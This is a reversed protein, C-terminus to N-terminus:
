GGLLKMLTAGAFATFRAALGPMALAIAAVGLVISVPLVLFFLQIQPAMRTALGLAVNFLLGFVIFPAALGLGARFTESLLSIYLEALDGAAVAGGAPIAGYSGIIGAIALHHLDAAFILMVGWMRFLGALIESQQGQAPDVAQAFSLGISQSAMAGAVEMATVVLRASLGIAIGIIIEAPLIRLAGEPTFGATEGSAALSLGLGLVIRARAPLTREGIGPLLMVMAGVRAFALMFSAVQALAPLALEM